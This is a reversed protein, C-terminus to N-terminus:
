KQDKIVSIILSEKLATEGTNVVLVLTYSLVLHTIYITVTHKVSTNSLCDLQDFYFVLIYM